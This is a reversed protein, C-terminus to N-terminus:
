KKNNAKYKYYRRLINYMITFYTYNIKTGPHGHKRPKKKFMTKGNGLNINYVGLMNQLIHTYKVMVDM